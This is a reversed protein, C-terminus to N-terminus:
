AAASDPPILRDLLQNGYDALTSLAMLGARAEVRDLSNSLALAQRLAVICSEVSTPDFLLHPQGLLLSTDGVDSAVVLLGRAAAELVVRPRAESLSPHLLIDYSRYDDPGLRKGEVVELKSVSAYSCGVVGARSNSFVTLSSAPFEQAVRLFSDIGLRHNKEPRANGVMMVRKSSLPSREVPRLWQPGLASPIFAVKGADLNFRSSLMASVAVSNTVVVDAYRLALRMAVTQVRGRGFSLGNQAVAIKPRPGKRRLGAQFLAPLSELVTSTGQFYLWRADGVHAGIARPRDLTVVLAGADEYLSCLASAGTRLCVRPQVGETVWHEFLDALRRETGGVGQTRGHVFLIEPVRELGRPVAGTSSGTM